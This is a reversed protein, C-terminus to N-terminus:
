IFTQASGRHLLASGVATRRKILMESFERPRADVYTSAAMAVRKVFLRGSTNSCFESLFM